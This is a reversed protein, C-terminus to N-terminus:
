KLPINMWEKLSVKKYGQPPQFESDPIGKKDARVVEQEVTNTDPDVERVLYGGEMILKVYKESERYEAKGAGFSAELSKSMEKQFKELIKLDIEKSINIEPALWIEEQPKGDVSVRYATAKFGAIEETKGLKEVEISVQSKEPPEQGPMKIGQKSMMEEMMKRQEPSMGEMQKAMQEKLEAMSSEIAQAITKIFEGIPEEIYTKKQPNTSILVGKEFDIITIEGGEDVTKIKNDQYYETTKTETEGFGSKSSKEIIWGAQSSASLVLVLVSALFLESIHRKM